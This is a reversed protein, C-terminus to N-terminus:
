SKMYLDLFDRGKRENFSIVGEASLKSSRTRSTCKYRIRMPIFVACHKFTVSVKRRMRPMLMRMYSVFENQFSYIYTKIKREGLVVLISKCTLRTVFLLAILLKVFTKWKENRKKKKIRVDYENQFHWVVVWM